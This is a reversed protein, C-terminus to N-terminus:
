GLGRARPFPPHSSRAISKHTSETNRDAATSKAARMAPNIANLARAPRTARSATTGGTQTEHRSGTESGCVSQAAHQIHPRAGTHERRQDRLALADLKEDM